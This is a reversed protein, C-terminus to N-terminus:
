NKYISIVRFLESIGNIKDIYKRRTNTTNISIWNLKLNSWSAGTVENPYWQQSSLVWNIRQKLIAMESVNQNNTIILHGILKM